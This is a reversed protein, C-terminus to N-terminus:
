ECLLNEPPSASFALVVTDQQWPKGTEADAFGGWLDAVLKGRRYLACAAGVDAHQEFNNSFSAVLKEFGPAVVGRVHKDSVSYQLEQM